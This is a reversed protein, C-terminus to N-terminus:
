DYKNVCDCHPPSAGEMQPFWGDGCLLLNFITTLCKSITQKNWEPDYQKERITIQWNSRDTTIIRNVGRHSSRQLLINMCTEAVGVTLWIYKSSLVFSAQWLFRYETPWHRRLEAARETWRERKRCCKRDCKTNGELLKGARGASFM